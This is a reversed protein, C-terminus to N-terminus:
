INIVDLHNLANAIACGLLTLLGIYQIAGNLRKAPELFHCFDNFRCSCLLINGGTYYGHAYLIRGLLWIVGGCASIIQLSLSCPNIAIIQTNVPFIQGGVLLLGMFGTYNEVRYYYYIILLKCRWPYLACTVWAGSTATSYKRTRTTPISILSSAFPRTNFWLLSSM